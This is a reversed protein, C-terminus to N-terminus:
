LADVNLPGFADSHGVHGVSGVAHLFALETYRTGDHLKQFRYRICFCLNPTVHGTTSEVSDTGTGGSCLFYHTPM